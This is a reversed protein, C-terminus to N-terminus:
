VKSQWLQELHAHLAGVVVLISEERLASKELAIQDAALHERQVHCQFVAVRTLDASIQQDRGEDECVARSRCGRRRREDPTSTAIGKSGQLVKGDAAGAM